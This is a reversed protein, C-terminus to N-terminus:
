YTGFDANLSSMITGMNADKDSLWIGAASINGKGFYITDAKGISDLTTNRTFSGSSLGTVEAGDKYLKIASSVSTDAWIHQATSSEAKFKFDNYDSIYVNGDTFLTASYPGNLTATAIRIGLTTGSTSRLKVEVRTWDTADVTLPSFTLFDDSGDFQLCAFGGQTITTGSAVIKPQSNNTSQSANNGNGSQDYWHRVFGDTGACFAEMTDIDIYRGVFPIPLEDNDSARRVQLCNGFYDSKVKFVDYFLAAGTIVDLLLPTVLRRGWIGAAPVIM